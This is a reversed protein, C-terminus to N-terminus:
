IDDESGQVCVRVSLCSVSGELISQIAQCGIVAKQGM